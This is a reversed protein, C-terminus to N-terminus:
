TQSRCGCVYFLVIESQDFCAHMSVCIRMVSAVRVGASSARALRFTVMRTSACAMRPACIGIIKVMAPRAPCDSADFGQQAVRGIERITPPDIIKALGTAHTM